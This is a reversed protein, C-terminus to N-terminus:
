NDDKHCVTCDLPVDDYLRHIDCMTSTERLLKTIRYIEKHVTSKEKILDDVSVLIEKKIEKNFRTKGRKDKLYQSVASPTLCLIESIEKQKISKKSLEIAFEKRLSPIVYRVEIEQPMLKM